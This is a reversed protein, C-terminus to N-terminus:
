PTRAARFGYRGFGASGPAGGARDSARCYSSDDDWSGGRLVRFSGSIPGPPDIGPSQSYYSAGYRDQVSEWVNGHM